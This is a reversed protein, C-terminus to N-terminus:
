IIRASGSGSLQIKTGATLAKVIHTFLTKEMLPCCFLGQGFRKSYKDWNEKTGPSFDLAGAGALGNERYQEVTNCASAAIGLLMGVAIRALTRM